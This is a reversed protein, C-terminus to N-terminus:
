RAADAAALIQEEAQAAIKEVAVAAESPSLKLFFGLFDEERGPKVEGLVLVMPVAPKELETLAMCNAHFRSLGVSRRYLVQAALGVLVGGMVGVVYWDADQRAVLAALVGLGAAGLVLGPEGGNPEAALRIMTVAQIGREPAKSAKRYPALAAQRRVSRARLSFFSLLLVVVSLLVGSFMAVERGLLGQPLPERVVSTEVAKRLEGASQSATKQSFELHDIVPKVQAKEVAEYVQKAAALQSELTADPAKVQKVAELTAWGQKAADNPIAVTTADEKCAFLRTAKEHTPKASPWAKDAAPSRPKARKASGEAEPAFLGSSQVLDRFVRIESELGGAAEICETLNKVQAEAAAAATDAEKSPRLPGEATM